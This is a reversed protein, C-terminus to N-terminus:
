KKQIKKTLPGQPSHLTLFYNGATLHGLNFTHTNLGTQVAIIRQEITRGTVDQITVQMDGSFSTTEFVLQTQDVVPNPYLILQEQSTIAEEISSLLGLDTKEFRAVGTSSGEFDIFQVKWVNDTTTKVFYVVDTSVTWGATFDYYKWDHGIIYLSDSHLNAQHDAFEVTTPDVGNARTVEVGENTLIGSVGYPTTGGMGDDLTTEYRTLVIDWSALEADVVANSTLSFYVLTKDAYDSKTITHTELNSGDLDAYRFHYTGNVLSDIKIKKYDGSPLQIVYVKTGEVIHSSMNYAGWGYDAFNSVDRTENFAGNAWSVETNVLGNGWDGNTITTSFDATNAEYLNSRTGGLTTGENLFIGADQAGYVSFAIHWNAHELTAKNGGDLEYYVADKYSAGMTLDDVTQAFMNNIGVFMFFLFYRTM